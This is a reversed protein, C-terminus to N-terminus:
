KKDTSQGKQEADEKKDTSQGKQEADESQGQPARVVKESQGQPTRVVKNKDKKSCSCLAFVCLVALILLKAKM